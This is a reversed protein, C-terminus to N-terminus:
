SGCVRAYEALDASSLMTDAYKGEMLYHMVSSEGEVHELSLAHGFEHALVRRLEDISEFQYINIANGTYEGQTFERETGFLRNYWAVKENYAAVAQNGREGLANISAVLRNLQRAIDNLNQSESSLEKEERQLRAFIDPPAGGQANWTGVEENHIALREEYTRVRGQYSAKVREYEAIMREYQARIDASMEQQDDLSLRAVEEADTAQQREDFVFNVTVDATEDYSFLNRGTADEWISEADSLVNRIESQGLAFREDVAGVRYSVPVKCESQVFRYWYFGGGICACMLAYACVKRMPEDYCADSGQCHYSIRESRRASLPTNQASRRFSGSM